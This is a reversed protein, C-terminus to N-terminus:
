EKDLSVNTKSGLAQFEFELSDGDITFEKEDAGSGMLSGDLAERDAASVVHAEGDDWTGRWYLMKTDGSLIEIVIMDGEIVARFKDDSYTGVATAPAEETNSCGSLTVITLMIVALITKMITGKQIHISSTTPTPGTAVLGWGQTVPRVVPLSEAWELVEM